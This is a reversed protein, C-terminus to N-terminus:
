LYGVKAVESQLTQLQVKLAEAAQALQRDSGFLAGGGILDAQLRDLDAGIGLRRQAAVLAAREAASAADDARAAGVWAAILAALGGYVHLRSRDGGTWLARMLPGCRDRSGYCSYLEEWPM